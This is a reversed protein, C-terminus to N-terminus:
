NFWTWFALLSCRQWKVTPAEVSSDDRVVCAEDRRVLHALLADVTIRNKIFLSQFQSM